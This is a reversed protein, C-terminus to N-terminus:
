PGDAPPPGLGRAALWAGLEEATELIAPHEELAPHVMGQPYGTPEGTDQNVM